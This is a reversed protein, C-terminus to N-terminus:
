LRRCRRWGPASPQQTSAHCQIFGTKGLYQKQRFAGRRTHSLRTDAVFTLSMVHHQVWSKINNVLWSEYMVTIFDVHDILRLGHSNRTRVNVPLLWNIQLRSMVVLAGPLLLMAMIYIGRSRIVSLTSTIRYHSAPTLSSCVAATVASSDM